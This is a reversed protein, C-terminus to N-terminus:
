RREESRHLERNRFLNNAFASCPIIHHRNSCGAAPIGVSRHFVFCRYRQEPIAEFDSGVVVRKDAIIEFGQGSISICRFVPRPQKVVNPKRFGDIDFFILLGLANNSSTTHSRFVILTTRYINNLCPMRHEYLECNRKFPPSGM